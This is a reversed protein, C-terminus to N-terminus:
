VSSTTVLYDAIMVDLHAGGGNKFLTIQEESRRGKAAQVMEYFDGQVDQESILGAAIPIRLEGIDHIATERSDVFLASKQILADDAERMEPTFAGILDIHTGPQIHVGHLIPTQAFTASSVIDSRQLAKPLDETATVAITNDEFAAAVEEARAHTRNWIQIESLTPFLESYAKILARAITGAGLITLVKSDPRALLRTGLVSDAATKIRTVLDGDVHARPAGTSLDFLTCVSHVTPLATNQPYVCAAKFGYGIGPVFASRTLLRTDWNEILTDSLTAKPKEHGARLAAM